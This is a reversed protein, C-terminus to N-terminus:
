IHETLDVRVKIWTKPIKIVLAYNYEGDIYSGRQAALLIYEKTEKLIWGVTEVLWEVGKAWDIYQDQTKWGEEHSVADTWRIYVMPMPAEGEELDEMYVKKGM